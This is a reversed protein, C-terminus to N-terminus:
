LKDKNSWAYEYILTWYFGGKLGGVLEIFFMNSM